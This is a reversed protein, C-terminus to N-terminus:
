VFNEREFFRCSLKRLVRRNAAKASKPYKGDKLFAKIDYYWPNGDQESEINPCYMPHDHTEVEIPHLDTENSIKIM